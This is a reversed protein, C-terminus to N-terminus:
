WPYKEWSKARSAQIKYFDLDGGEKRQTYYKKGGVEDKKFM